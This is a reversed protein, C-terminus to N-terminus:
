RLFPNNAMEDAVTTSPGHGPYLTTDGPLTLVQNHISALLTAFDGGALDTRGVGQKFILDGCFAAKLAPVYFLVHGRTHGPVERVEIVDSGLELRQGQTLHLSIAPLQGLDIHYAGAGGAQDYLAEDASSLGIDFPSSYAKQLDTIGAIHDFHAHTLLIAKIKLQNEQVFAITEATDFSPDIIYAERSLDDFLLFCNNEMPGQVFSELKIM